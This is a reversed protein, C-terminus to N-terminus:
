RNIDRESVVGSHMREWELKKIDRYWKVSQIGLGVDWMV